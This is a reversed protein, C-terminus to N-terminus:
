RTNEQELPSPIGPSPHPPPTAATGTGGPPAADAPRLRALGRHVHNNVASRRMGLLEAVDDYSWGFGHVLLVCARQDPSLGGLLQMVDHMAPDEHVVDPFRSPFTTRRSWRVYRRASSQSVRYLYGLPNAMRLLREGHKWAYEEVECCLDGGVEIGWKSWLVPLLRARVAAILEEVSRPGQQAATPDM